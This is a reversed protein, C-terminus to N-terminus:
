SILKSMGNQSTVIELTSLFDEEYKEEEIEKNKSIEIRELRNTLSQNYKKINKIEEKLKEVEIKLDEM